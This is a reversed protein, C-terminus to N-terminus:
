FNAMSEAHAADFGEWTKINEQKTMLVTKTTIRSATTERVTSHKHIQQPCFSKVRAM